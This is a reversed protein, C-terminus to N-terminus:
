EIGNKKKCWEGIGEKLSQPTTLPRNCIICTSSAELSFGDIPQGHWLCWLHSAYEAQKQNKFRKAVAIGTPTLTGFTEYDTTNAPGILLAVTRQGRYPGFRETRIRFTKHTDCPFTLTYMGNFVEPCPLGAHDIPKKELLDDWDVM